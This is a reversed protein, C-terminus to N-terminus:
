SPVKSVQIDRGKRGYTSVSLRDIGSGKNKKLQTRQSKLENRIWGQLKCAETRWKRLMYQSDSHKGAWASTIVSPEVYGGANDCMFKWQDAGEGKLWESMDRSVQMWSLEAQIPQPPHAAVQPSVNVVQKTPLAEIKNEEKAHTSVCKDKITNTNLKDKNIVNLKQVSGNLKQVIKASERETKSRETKSRNTTKRETKSRINDEEYAKKYWKKTTKKLTPAAPNVEIYGAKVGKEVIGFVTGKSVGLFRAIEGYSNKAWGKVNYDPNTQSRYYIDFICYQLVSLGM